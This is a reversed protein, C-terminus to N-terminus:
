ILLLDGFLTDAAPISRQEGDRIVHAHAAAMQLLAAVASEARVVFSGRRKPM